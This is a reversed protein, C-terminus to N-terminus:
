SKAKELFCYINLEKQTDSFWFTDWPKSTRGEMILHHTEVRTSIMLIGEQVLGSEPIVATATMKNTALFVSEQKRMAVIVVLHM